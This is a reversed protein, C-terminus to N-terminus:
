RELWREWKPRIFNEGIYKMDNYSLINNKVQNCKDCALTLNGKIYGLENDKCDVTLRSKVSGFYERLIYTQNEQIGCYECIRPQSDHWKIFDEKSIFVEKRKYFNSRGTIGSYVGAASERWLKGLEANCEKCHYAHGDKTLRHKSFASLPKIQGCKTCAKMREM